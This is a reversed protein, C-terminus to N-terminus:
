VTVTTVSSWASARGASSKAQYQVDYTAGSTVVASYAELSIMNITFYQYGDSTGSLRYRFAATVDGRAPASFTAKIQSGPTSYSVGSLNAVTNSLGLDPTLQPPAGEEGVGLTWKDSSMPVVTMGCSIGQADQEVPAVIEYEGVFTADMDLLIGRERTALIGKITTGLTARQTAAIRTGIAKALRVAQNHNQCTLIEETHYNPISTGDYWDPNQWPACPQRTYGQAPDIYYVVVGDVATDGDDTILTQASIIDRAATFELTPTVYYGAVPYALGADDYAVFGDMAELIERECEWRPKSDPFAAGARYLPTAVSDRDLVTLDCIDAQEGVKTWNIETMPRNRGYQATRFWAWIIAANGDSPTWTTSDNIDHTVDRPDYMRSFNGVLVVSPEGLGLAGRWHM